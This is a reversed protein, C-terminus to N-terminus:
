NLKSIIEPIFNIIDTAILSFDNKYKYKFYDGAYGHLYAALCTAELSNVGMALLGGIMGSLVDGTGAKALSPGGSGIVFVRDQNDAVLSRYGKLLINGGFIKQACLASELKTKNINVSISQLLYSLEGSHPTLVWNLPLCRILKKEAKLDALAHIADADVVVPIESFKELIKKFLQNSKKDRGLGPGIVISTPSKIANLFNLNKDITANLIVPSLNAEINKRKGIQSYSAAYNIHQASPWKAMTVYGAGMRAGALAALVAAGEMGPSGGIVLLHGRHSKNIKWSAFSPLSKRAQKKGYFFIKPSLEQYADTAFGINVIKIKGCLMPGDGIIMGLKPSGVTYTILAQLTGPSAKGTTANLGSPIDVAIVKSYSTFLKLTKQLSRSLDKNLGVGFIADIVLTNRSLGKLREYHKQNQCNIWQINKHIGELEKKKQTWLPSTGEQLCFVIVAKNQMLLEKAIVFGDGGNNGPGVLVLFTDQTPFDNLIMHSIEKGARNMLENATINLVEQTRADVQHSQTATLLQQM